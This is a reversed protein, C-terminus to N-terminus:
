EMIGYLVICLVFGFVIILNESCRMNGWENYGYRLGLAGDSIGNKRVDRDM